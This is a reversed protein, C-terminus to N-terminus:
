PCNAVAGKLPGLPDGSSWSSPLMHTRHGIRMEIMPNNFTINDATLRQQKETVDDIRASAINRCGVLPDSEPTTTWINEQSQSIGATTGELWHAALESHFVKLNTASVQTARMYFHYKQGGINMNNYQRLAYPTNFLEQSNPSGADQMTASGFTMSQVTVSSSTESPVTIGGHQSVSSVSPVDLFDVIVTFGGASPDRPWTENRTLGAHGQVVGTFQVFQVALLLSVALVVAFKIINVTSERM